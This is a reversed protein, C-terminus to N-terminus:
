WYHALNKISDKHNTEINRLEIQKYLTSDNELICKTSKNLTNSQPKKMVNQLHYYKDVM